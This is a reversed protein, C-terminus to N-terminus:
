PSKATAHSRYLETCVPLPLQNTAVRQHPHPPSTVIQMSPALVSTALVQSDSLENCTRDNHAALWRLRLTQSRDSIM